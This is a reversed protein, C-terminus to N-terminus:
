IEMKIFITPIWFMSKCLIRRPSRALLQDIVINFKISREEMISLQEMTYYKGCYAVMLQIRSRDTKGIGGEIFELLARKPGIRRALKRNSISVENCDFSNFVKKNVEWTKLDWPVVNLNCKLLDTELPYDLEIMERYNIM